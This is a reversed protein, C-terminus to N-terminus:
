DDKVEEYDIYEGSNKDIKKNRKPAFDVKVDGEKRFHKKERNSRFYTNNKKSGPMQILWTIFKIGYYILFFFLLIRFLGVLM